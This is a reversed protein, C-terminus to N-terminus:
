LITTRYLRRAIRDCASRTTSPRERSDVGITTTAAAMARPRNIHDFPGAGFLHEDYTRQFLDEAVLIDLFRTVGFQPLFALGSETLENTAWVQPEGPSVIERIKMTKASLMLDSHWASSFVSVEDASGSGLSPLEAMEASFYKLGNSNAHWLLDGLIMTVDKSQKCTLEDFWTTGGKLVM